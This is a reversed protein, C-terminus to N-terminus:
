RERNLIVTARQNSRSSGSVHTDTNIWKRNYPHTRRRAGKYKLIRTKKNGGFCRKWYMNSEFKFLVM